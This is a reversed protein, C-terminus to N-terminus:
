WHLPQRRSQKLFTPGDSRQHRQETSALRQGSNQSALETCFQLFTNSLGKREICELLIWVSLIPLAMVPTAEPSLFRLCATCPGKPVPFRAPKLISAGEQRVAGCQPSHALGLVRRLPLGWCVLHAGHSRGCALSRLLGSKLRPPAM